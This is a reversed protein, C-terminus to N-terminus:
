GGVYLKSVLLFSNRARVVVAGDAVLGHLPGTLGAQSPAILTPVRQMFLAKVLTHKGTRRLRVSWRVPANSTPALDDPLSRVHM